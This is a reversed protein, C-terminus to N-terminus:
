LQEVLLADGETVVAEAQPDLGQPLLALDEGAPAAGAAAQGPRERWLDPVVSREPCGSRVVWKWASLIFNGQSFDALVALGGQGAGGDPGQHHLQGERRHGGLQDVHQVVDHVADVDAVDRLHPPVGEGAQPDGEGDQHEDGGEGGEGAHAAGRAEMRRPAPSRSPASFIRPVEAAMSM